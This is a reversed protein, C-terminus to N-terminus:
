KLAQVESPKEKQFIVEGPKTFGLETRIVMELNKPDKLIIQEEELEKVKAELKKEKLQLENKINKLRELQLIGQDGFVSLWLFVAIGLSLFFRFPTFFVAIIKKLIKM